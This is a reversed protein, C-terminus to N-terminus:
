RRVVAFNRSVANRSFTRRTPTPTTRTTASLASSSRSRRVTVTDITFTEGESSAVPLVVGRDLGVTIKNLQEDTLLNFEYALEEPSRLVPEEPTVVSTARLDKPLDQTEYCFSVFWKGEPEVSICLSKPIAFPGHAKFHLRGMPFKPTGLYLAYKVERTKRDTYPAFEFLESTLMVSQRGSKHKITPADGLGKLYRTHAVAFKYAGNRLIQSPVQRLFQTEDSIFQSYAQDPLPVEGTLPLAKHGFTRWYQAEKTKANQTFRQHGIWVRLQGKLWKGPQASLKIGSLM